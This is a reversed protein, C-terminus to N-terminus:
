PATSGKRDTLLQRLLREVEERPYRRQGGLTPVSPLKGLKAWRTVTSPCVDFLEAVEKRSLFTRRGAWMVGRGEKVRM